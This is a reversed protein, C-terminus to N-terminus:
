YKNLIALLQDYEKRNLHQSIIQDVQKLEERTIGNEMILSIKQMDQQPLKSVLISFIKMKDDNTLREKKQSFEEATMIMDKQQQGGQRQYLNQSWVAVADEGVPEKTQDATTETEQESLPVQDNETSDPRKADLLHSSDPAKGSLGVTHIGDSLRSLFDSFQYHKEPVNINMQDLVSKLYTNVIYWSTFVSLFSILVASVALKSLWVLMKMVM